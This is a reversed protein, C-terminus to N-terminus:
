DDEVEDNGYYGDSWDSSSESTVDPELSGGFDIPEKELIEEKDDMVLDPAYPDDEKRLYIGTGTIMHYGQKIRYFFRTFDRVSLGETRWVQVILVAAGVAMGTRTWIKRNYPLCLEHYSVARGAAYGWLIHAPLWNFKHNDNRFMQCQVMLYRGLLTLIGCANACKTGYRGMNNLMTNMQVKKSQLPMEKLERYGMFSGYLGGALLGTLYMYGTEVLMMDAHKRSKKKGSEVYNENESILGSIGYPDVGEYLRKFDSFPNSSTQTYPDGSEGDDADTYPGEM